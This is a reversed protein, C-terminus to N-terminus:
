KVIKVLGQRELTKAIDIEVEVKAGNLYKTGKIVVPAQNIVEVTAKNGMKEVEKKLKEEQKKERSM